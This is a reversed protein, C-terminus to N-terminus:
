IVMAMQGTPEVVSHNVDDLRSILLETVTDDDCDYYADDLLESLDQLDMGHQFALLLLRHDIRDYKGTIELVPHDAANNALFFAYAFGAPTVSRANKTALSSGGYQKHMKSGDSPFVPAVPLDANFRGWILTKKTYPEGLDCPNFSLRWPPLGALKEIRGVPNEIAWIAPRYYEVLRMTQHVLAISAATRGDLDKSLFHRAGSNAFDTCPCAALIAYVEAGEFDGFFEKFFEVDFKSVDGLEPDDQIDFRYVQYGAEAWPDSWQGSMDFLSLIVKGSNDAKSQASVQRMWSRIVDAAENQSLLDYDRAKAGLRVVENALPAEFLRHSGDEVMGRVVSACPTVLQGLSLEIPFSHEPARSRIQHTHSFGSM